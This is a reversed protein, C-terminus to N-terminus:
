AQRNAKREKRLKSAALVAGSGAAVMLLTAAAGGVGDGTKVIRTGYKNVFKVDKPNVQDFVTGTRPDYNRWYTLEENLIGGGVDHATVSAYFVADTYFVGSASGKEEYIKLVYTGAHEIYLSPFTITGDAKNTTSVRGNAYGNGVIENPDGKVVEATFTFEGDRLDRGELVKFGTLTPDIGKYNLCNDVSFEIATADHAFDATFQNHDPGDGGMYTVTYAGQNTEVLTYTEGDVLVDAWDVVETVYADDLFFDIDTAQGKVNVSSKGYAVPDGQADRLEFAFDRATFNAGGSVTKSGAFNFGTDLTNTVSFEIAPADHALDAVFENGLAGTGGAYTVSYAGANMEVLSYTEGSVLIQTWDNIETAYSPEKYFEVDTAVGKANVSAKGYAVPDGAADRVQFDFDRAVFSASGEVTKTASFDFTTNRTNVATVSVSNAKGSFDPTFENNLAGEGNAYTVSFGEAGGTEVLQYAQGGALVETWDGVAETRAADKYFRVPTPTDAAAVDARGWAAPAGSADRVEFDFSGPVFDATGTVSKYAEFTFGANKANVATVEIVQSSDSFNPTFENHDSGLGGSFSVNFGSGGSTEVLKYTKGSTFVLTWDSIETKHSSEKYFKIPAPTNADSPTVTGYAVVTGSDDQIEFQFTTPVFDATGTVTKFASFNCTTKANTFTVWNGIPTTDEVITGSWSLTGSEQSGGAGELTAQFGPDPPETVKYTTGVPINKITVTENHKLTITAKGGVVHLTGEKSSSSSRLTYPYDVTGTGLEIEFEFSLSNDSIGTVTKKIQLSGYSGTDQTNTITVYRYEGDDYEWKLSGEMGAIPDEVVRYQDYGDADLGTFTHFRSNSSDLVVSDIYTDGKFLRVTVPASDTGKDFAKRVSLAKDLDGAYLAGNCAIAGGTNNEAVNGKFVMTAADRARQKDTESVQATLYKSTIVYQYGSPELLEHSTEDYWGISGGGLCTTSAYFPYAGGGHVVDNGSGTGTNDFVAYSNTISYGLLNVGTNCTWLGGGTRAQNETVLLNKAHTISGVEIYMGGGFATKNTNYSVEGANLYTAGKTYIGAGRSALGEASNNTIKGGNMIFTAGLPVFLGTGENYDATSHNGSIEGGEMTFLAPDVLYVGHTTSGTIVANGSLTCEGLVRVLEGSRGDGDLKLDGSITLKGGTAVTILPASNATNRTLSGGSSHSVLTINSGAPISIPSTVSIDGQITITTPSSGAGTIANQLDLLTEVTSDAFPVIGSGALPVVLAGDPEDQKPATEELGNEETRPSEGEELYAEGGGDEGVASTEENALPLASAGIDEPDAAFATLTNGPFLTLALAFALAVRPLKRMPKM